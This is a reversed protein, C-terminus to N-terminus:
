VSIGASMPASLLLELDNDAIYCNQPNGLSYSTMEYGEWVGSFFGLCTLLYM